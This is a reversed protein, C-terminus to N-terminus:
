TSSANTLPLRIRRERNVARVAELEGNRTDLQDTLDIETDLRLNMAKLLQLRDRRRVLRLRQAKLEAVLSRVDIEHDGGIVREAIREAHHPQAGTRQRWRARGSARGANNATPNHAGVPPAQRMGLHPQDRLVIEAQRARGVSVLVASKFECVQRGSLNDDDRGLRAVRGDSRVLRRETRDQVRGAREIEGFPFRALHLKDQFFL